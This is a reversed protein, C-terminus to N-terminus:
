HVAPATTANQLTAQPRAQKFFRSLTSEQQAQAQQAAVVEALIQMPVGKCTLFFGTFLGKCECSQPHDSQSSKFFQLFESGKITSPTPDVIGEEKMLIPWVNCM